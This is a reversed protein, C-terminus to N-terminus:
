YSMSHTHTDTLACLDSSPICKALQIDTNLSRMAAMDSYLVLDKTLLLLTHSLLGRVIRFSYFLLSTTKRGVMPAVLACRKQKEGM